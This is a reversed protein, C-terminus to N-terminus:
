GVLGRLARPQDFRSNDIVVDARAAPDVEAAYLDESVVYRDRMVTGDGGDRALGRAISDATAIELWIRLDWHDNLEPRFAFVGDVVLIADPAAQVTAESHDIQTRPDVSCLACVGDGVMPTLLLRRVADYDFANRYYGEGSERDYLGRDRWPRKFDDLSARLVPRGRAALAHALEHGFSTKGSATRGDVAVELRGSGLACVQQALAALLRKRDDSAADPLPQAWTSVSQQISAM